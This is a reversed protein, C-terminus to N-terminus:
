GPEAEGLSGSAGISRCESLTEGAVAVRLDQPLKVEVGGAQTFYQQFAVTRRGGEARVIEALFRVPAEGAGAHSSSCLLINPEEAGYDAAAPAARRLATELWQWAPERNARMPDAREKTCLAAIRHGLLVHPAGFPDTWRPRPMALWHSASAPATRWVCRAWEADGPKAASAPAALALGLALAASAAAVKIM